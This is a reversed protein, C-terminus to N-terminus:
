AFDLRAQADALDTLEVELAAIAFQLRRRETPRPTWRLHDYHRALQAELVHQRYARQGQEKLQRQKKLREREEMARGSKRRDRAPSLVFWDLTGVGALLFWFGFMGAAVWDTGAVIM